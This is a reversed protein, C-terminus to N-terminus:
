SKNFNGVALFIADSFKLYSSTIANIGLQQKKQQGRLCFNRVHSAHIRNFNLTCKKWIQFFM